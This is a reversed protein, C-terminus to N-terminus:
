GFVAILILGIANFTIHAVLPALITGRREYIVALGFGTVAMTAQLLLADPWPAPVYHVLGFLAASVIAGLWFGSRDRISRFLLGRFFLEEAVPALVLGFLAAAAWGAIDLDKSIQRPTQVPEGIVASFVFALVVASGVAIGYLVAGALISRGIERTRDDRTPWGMIERWGPHRTNLYAVTLAIAVLSGAAAGLLTAGGAAGSGDDAGAVTYVLGGVLALGILQHAVFV